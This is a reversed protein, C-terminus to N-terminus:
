SGPRGGGIGAAAGTAAQTTAAAQVRHGTRYPPPRRRPRAHHLLQTRLKRLRALEDADAHVVWHDGFVATVEDRYIWDYLTGIPMGLEAALASVTWQEELLSAPFAPPAPAPLCDGSAPPSTGGHFQVMRYVAVSLDSAHTQAEQTDQANQLAALARSALWAAGDATIQWMVARGRQAPVTGVNVARGLREHRRMATGCQKLVRSWPLSAEGFARALQPTTLGEPHRALIQLLMRTRGTSRNM